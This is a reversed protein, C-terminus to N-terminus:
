DHTPPKYKLRSYAEGAGYWGENEGVEPYLGMLEAHTAQDLATLDARAVSRRIEDDYHPEPPTGLGGIWGYVGSFGRDYFLSKYATRAFIGSV